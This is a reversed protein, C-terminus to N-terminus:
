GSTRSCRGEKCDNRAPESEDAERADPSVGVSNQDAPRAPASSRGAALATPESSTSRPVHGALATPFSRSSGRRRGPRRTTELARDRCCRKRGATASSSCSRGGACRRSGAIARPYSPIPSCRGPPGSLSPSSAPGPSVYIGTPQDFGFFAFETGDPAWSAYTGSTIAQVRGTGVTVLTVPYSTLLLSGDPSWVGSRPGDALLEPSDGSVAPIAYIRSCRFCGEFVSYAIRAGDPSWEPHHADLRPGSHAPFAGAPSMWAGSTAVAQSLWRVAMLRGPLGYLDRFAPPSAAATGAPPESSSCRGTTGATRVYALRTGNPSWVPDRTQPAPSKAGASCTLAVGCLLVVLRRM